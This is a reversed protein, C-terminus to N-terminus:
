RSETQRECKIKTEAQRERARLEGLDTERDKERHNEVTHGEDTGDGDRCGKFTAIGRSGQGVGM